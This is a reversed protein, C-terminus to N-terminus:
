IEKKFQHQIDIQKIVRFEICNNLRYDIMTIPPFRNQINM